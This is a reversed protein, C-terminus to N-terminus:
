VAKHKIQRRPLDESGFSDCGRYALAAKQQAPTLSAFFGIMPKQAARLQPETLEAELALRKRRSPPLTKALSGSAAM